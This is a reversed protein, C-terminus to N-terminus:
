FTLTLRIGNGTFGYEIEVNSVSRANNYSNVSRRVFKKSTTKIITGCIYVIAGAMAITLADDEHYPDKVYRYYENGNSSYRYYEKKEFPQALWIYTSSAVAVASAFMLINGYGNRRLGKNYLLFAEQTDAMLERVENQSLPRGNAYVTRRDAILTSVVPPATQVSQTQVSPPLAQPPPQQASSMIESTMARVVEALDHLGNRTQVTRQNEVQETRANILRCSVIFNSGASEINTVIILDAGWDSVNQNTLHSDLLTYGNANAIISGIEDRVVGKMHAGLVGAPELVAVKRDQAMAANGLLLAFIFFFIIKQM